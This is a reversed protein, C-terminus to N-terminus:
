RSQGLRLWRRRGASSGHSGRRMLGDIIAEVLLDLRFKGSVALESASTPSFDFLVRASPYPDQVHSTAPKIFSPATPTTAASSGISGILAPSYLVNPVITYLQNVERQPEPWPYYQDKAEGLPVEV